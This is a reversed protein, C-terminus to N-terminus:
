ENYEDEDYDVREGREALATTLKKIEEQMEDIESLADKLRMWGAESLGSIVRLMREDNVEVWDGVLEIKM